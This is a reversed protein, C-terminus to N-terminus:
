VAEQGILCLIISKGPKTIYAIDYYDLLLMRYMLHAEVEHVHEELWNIHTIHALVQLHGKKQGWVLGLCVKQDRM